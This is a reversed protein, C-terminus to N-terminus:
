GVWAHNSLVTVPGAGQATITSGGKHIFWFDSDGMHIFRLANAQDGDWYATQRFMDFEIYTGLITVAAPDLGQGWKLTHTGNNITFGSTTVGFVKLVPWSVHNGNNPVVTPAGNPVTTSIEPYELAEPREAVLTFSFTKPAASGPSSPEIKLEDFLRVNHFRTPKGPPRWFYRGLPDSPQGFVGSQLMGDLASRLHDDLITRNAPTSAIIEGEVYIFRASKRFRHIIAGHKHPRNTIPNRIPAGDNGGVFTVLYGNGDPLGVPAKITFGLGALSNASVASGNLVNFVVEGYSSLLSQPIGVDM